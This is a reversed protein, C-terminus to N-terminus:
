KRLTREGFLYFWVSQAALTAGASEPNFVWALTVALAVAPRMLARVDAVWPSVKDLPRDIDALAKLREVDSNNLQIADAVTLPAIRDPAIWRQVAAKGADVVVPAFAALISFPDFM